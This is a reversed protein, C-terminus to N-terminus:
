TNLCKDRPKSDPELLSGWARCAVVIRVYLIGNLKCWRWKLSPVMRLKFCLCGKGVLFFSFFFFFFCFSHLILFFSTIVIDLLLGDIGSPSISRECKRREVLSERSLISSRSIENTTTKRQVWNKAKGKKKTVPPIWRLHNATWIKYM